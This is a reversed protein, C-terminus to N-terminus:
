SRFIYAVLLPYNRTGSSRLIVEFGQLSIFIFTCCEGGMGGEVTGSFDAEGKVCCRAGM